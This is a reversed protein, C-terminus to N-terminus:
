SGGLDAGVARPHSVADSGRDRRLRQPRHESVPMALQGVLDGRVALGGLVTQTGAQILRQPM